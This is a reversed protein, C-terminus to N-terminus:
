SGMSAHRPYEQWLRDAPIERCFGTTEFGDLHAFCSLLEVCIERALPLAVRGAGRERHSYCRARICIVRGFLIRQGVLYRKKNRLPLGNNRLRNVDAQEVGTASPFLFAQM